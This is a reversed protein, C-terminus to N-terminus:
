FTITNLLDFVCNVSMIPEENCPLESSSTITKKLIRKM